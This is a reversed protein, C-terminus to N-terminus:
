RARVADALRRQQPHDAAQQGGFGARDSQRPLDSARRAAVFEVDLEAVEAVEIGQLAVQRRALVELEEGAQALRQRVLVDVGREVADADQRAAVQRRARQRGALLAAQRQGPQQQRVRREPDEVLRDGVEVGRADRQDLFQDGFVHLLAAQGERGRM